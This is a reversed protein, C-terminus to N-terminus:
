KVGDIIVATTAAHAAATAAFGLVLSIESLKM